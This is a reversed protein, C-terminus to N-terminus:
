LRGQPMSVGEAAADQKCMEQVQHKSEPQYYYKRYFRATEQPPVDRSGFPPIIITDLDDYKVELMRILEGNGSILLRRFDKAVGDERKRVEALIYAGRNGQLIGTLTM